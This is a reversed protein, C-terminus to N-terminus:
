TLGHQNRAFSFVAKDKCRQVGLACRTANKHNRLSKQEIKLNNMWFMLKQEKQKALVYKIKGKKITNKKKKKVSTYSLLM